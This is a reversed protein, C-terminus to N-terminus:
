KVEGGGFLVLGKIVLEKGDNDPNTNVVKREDSFGGFIATVEVRVNMDSPVIIDTGGFLVFVDLVNTGVALDANVLNIDSGGFISTVKGGKFDQSTIVRDSGGFFATEDVHDASDGYETKKEKWDGLRGRRFILSLGIIIFVLPWFDFIDWFDFRWYYYDAMEDILFVGGIITIILGSTIRERTAMLIVGVLILISYWGFLYYPLFFDLVNLNNLVMLLGALVLIGGLIYRKNPATAM